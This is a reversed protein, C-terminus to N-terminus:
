FDQKGGEDEESSEEYDLSESLDLIEEVTAKLLARLLAAKFYMVLNYDKCFVMEPGVVERVEEGLSVDGIILSFYRILIKVDM